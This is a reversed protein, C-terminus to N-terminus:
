AQQIMWTYQDREALVDVAISIFQRISYLCSTSNEILYSPVDQASSEPFSVTVLLDRRFIIQKTSWYRLLLWAERRSHKISQELSPKIKEPLSNYWSDLQRQLESSISRSIPSTLGTNPSSPSSALKSVKSEKYLINHIRNQLRRISFVALLYLESSDVIRVRPFHMTDILIEIGSRPLHFEALCDSNPWM